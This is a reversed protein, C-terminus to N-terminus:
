LDLLFRKFDGFDIPFVQRIGITPQPTFCLKYFITVPLFCNGRNELSGPLLFFFLFFYQKLIPDVPLYIQQNLHRDRLGRRRLFSTNAHETPAINGWTPGFFGKRKKHIFCICYVYLINFNIPTSNSFDLFAEQPLTIILKSFSNSRKTVHM